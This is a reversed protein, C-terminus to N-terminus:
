VWGNGQMGKKAPSLFTSQTSLLFFGALTFSLSKSSIGLLICLLGIIQALLSIGVVKRKQYRDAVWGAFPAFLIFPLILLISVQQNVLDMTGKGIEYAALLPLFAKVANDNFAALLQAVLLPVTKRFPLTQTSMITVFSNTAGNELPSKKQFM